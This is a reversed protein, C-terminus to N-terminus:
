VRMKLNEIKDLDSRNLVKEDLNIFIDRNLVHFNLIKNEKFLKWILDWQQKNQEELHEELDEFFKKPDWQIADDCRIITTKKFDNKKSNILVKFMLNFQSNPYKLEILLPNM